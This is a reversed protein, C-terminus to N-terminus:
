YGVLGSHYCRSYSDQTYNQKLPYCRFLYSITVPNQFDCYRTSRLYLSLFSLSNFIQTPASLFFHTALSLSLSRSVTPPYLQSTQKSRIPLSLSLLPFQSTLHKKPLILVKRRSLTSQHSTCEM